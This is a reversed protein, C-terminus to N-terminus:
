ARRISLMQRGNPLKGELETKAADYGDATATIVDM